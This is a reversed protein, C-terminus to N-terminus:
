EDGEKKGEFIEEFFYICSKEPQDPDLRYKDDLQEKETGGTLEFENLHFCNAPCDPINNDDKLQKWGKDRVADDTHGESRAWCFKDKKM